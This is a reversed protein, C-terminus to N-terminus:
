IEGKFGLEKLKKVLRDIRKQLLLPKQWEKMYARQRDRIKPDSKRKEYIMKQCARCVRRGNPAIYLNDGSYPHGHKCFPKLGGYKLCANMPIDHQKRYEIGRRTNEQSTVIELHAPNVCGPVRCLHDLTFGEPVDGVIMEYAIRHARKPKGDIRFLGYGKESKTGSWLWCGETKTVHSWFMLKRDESLIMVKEEM